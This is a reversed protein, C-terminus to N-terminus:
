AGERQKDRHEIVSSWLYNGGRRRVHGQKAWHQLTRLPIGLRESVVAGPQWVEAKTVTAVIGLRTYDWESRCRPCTAVETEAIKIRKGCLRTPDDPHESPCEVVTVPEANIRAATRAERHVQRVELAFEDVALFEACIRDLNTRLWDVVGCLTVGTHDDSDSDAWRAAKRQRQTYDPDQTPTFEERLLREWSELKAIADVPNRGDLAAVRLGLTRESSGGSSGAGTPWYEAQAEVYLEPLDALMRDIRESCDVCAM